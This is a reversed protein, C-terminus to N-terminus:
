PTGGVGPAPAGCNCVCQVPPPPPAPACAVPASAVPACEAPACEAPSAMPDAPWPTMPGCRVVAESTRVDLRMDPGGRHDHEDVARLVVYHRGHCLREAEELCDPLSTKCRLHTAGDPRTETSVRATACGAALACLLALSARRLLTM